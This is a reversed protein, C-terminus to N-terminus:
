GAPHRWHQVTVSGLTVDGIRSAGLREATRQSRTNDPHIFSALHPFAFCDMAWARAAGAAEAAFGQGWAPRALAYALEPEPWHVPHLIGARGLFDGNARSTVAFFGYGRLAWHGLMSELNAWAEERTRPRQPGIFRAVDPDALMAALPEFDALGLPRLILRATRLTPISAM